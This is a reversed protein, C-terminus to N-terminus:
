PLSYVKIVMTFLIKSLDLGAKKNPPIENQTIRPAAALAPAEPLGRYHIPETL